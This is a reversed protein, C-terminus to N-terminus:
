WCRVVGRWVVGCLVWGRRLISGSRRCFSLVVGRWGVYKVCCQTVMNLVVGCLLGRGVMCCLDCFMAGGLAVCMVCCEVVGSFRGVEEFFSLARGDLM